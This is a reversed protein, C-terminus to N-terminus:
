SPRSAAFEPPLSGRRALDLRSFRTTRAAGSRPRRARDRAGLQRGVTLQASPGQASSGPFAGSTKQQRLQDRCIRFIDLKSLTVDSAKQKQLCDSIMQRKTMISRNWSDDALSNAGMLLLGVLAISQITPTM